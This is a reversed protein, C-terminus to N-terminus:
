EEKLTKRKKTQKARRGPQHIIRDAEVKVVKFYFIRLMQVDLYVAYLYYAFLLRVKSMYIVSFSFLINLKGQFTDEYGNFCSWQCSVFFWSCCCLLHIPHTNKSMRISQEITTSNLNIVTEMVKELISGGIATIAWVNYYTQDDSWNPWVCMAPWKM